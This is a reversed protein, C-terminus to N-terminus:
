VQFFNVVMVSNLSCTFHFNDMKKIKKEKIVLHVSMKRRYSSFFSFVNTMRERVTQERVQWIWNIHWVYTAMGDRQRDTQRDCRRNVRLVGHLGSSHIKQGVFIVSMGWWWADSQALLGSQKASAGDNRVCWCEGNSGCHGVAHSLNMFLRLIDKIKSDYYLVIANNLNEMKKYYNQYIPIKKSEVKRPGKIENNWCQCHAINEANEKEDYEGNVSNSGLRFFYRTKITEQIM